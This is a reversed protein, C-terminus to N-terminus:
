WGAPCFLKLTSIMSLIFFGLSFSSTFLLTSFILYIFFCLGFCAYLPSVSLSLSLIFDHLHLQQQQQQQQPQASRSKSPPPRFCFVSSSWGVVVVAVVVVVVICLVYWQCSLLSSQSISTIVSQRVCDSQPETIKKGTTCTRPINLPLPSSPVDHSM